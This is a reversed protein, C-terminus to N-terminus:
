PLAATTCIEPVSTAPQRAYARMSTLRAGFSVFFAATRSARLMDVEKVEVLVM